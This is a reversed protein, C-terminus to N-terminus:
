GHGGGPRRGSLAAFVGGRFFLVALILVPGLVIQWHPTFAVLVEELLLLLLAGYIPGVLSALGGLLVIVMLQGSRSWHMLAPSVFESHNAILAGALGTIAGSLVFAALKYGFPQFGLARMRRENQRCGELVRGFRSRVVRALFWLAALLLAVCVYYFHVREGLDVGALANRAWLPLGDQGGYAGLSTFFYYVLQGFALTIMIFYVGSTRLSLAGVM